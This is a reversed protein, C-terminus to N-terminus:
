DNRTTTRGFQRHTILLKRKNWLTHAYDRDSKNFQYQYCHKDFFYRIIQKINIKFDKLKIKNIDIRKKLIDDIDKQKINYIYYEETEGTILFEELKFTDKFLNELLKFEEENIKNDIKIKIYKYLADYSKNTNKFIDYLNNYFFIASSTGIENEIKFDDFMRSFEGEFLSNTNINRLSLEAIFMNIGLVSAIASFGYISVINLIQNNITDELKFTLLKVDSNQSMGDSDDKRADFIYNWGSVPQNLGMFFNYSDDHSEGDDLKKKHIMDFHNDMFGFLRKDKYHLRHKNILHALARNHEAGGVTLIDVTKINDNDNLCAPIYIDSNPKENEDLPL